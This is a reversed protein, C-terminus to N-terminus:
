PFLGLNERVKLSPKVITKPRTAIILTVPPVLIDGKTVPIDKRVPTAAKDGTPVQNVIPTPREYQEQQNQLPSLHRNRRIKRTLTEVKYSQPTSATEIVLRVM